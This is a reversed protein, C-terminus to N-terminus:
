ARTAMLGAAQEVSSFYRAMQCSSHSLTRVMRCPLATKVGVHAGSAGPMAVLAALRWRVGLDKRHRASCPHPHIFSCAMPHVPCAVGTQAHQASAMRRRKRRQAPVTSAAQDLVATHKRM